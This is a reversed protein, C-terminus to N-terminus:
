RSTVRPLWDRVAAAVAQLDAKLSHNGPVTVV